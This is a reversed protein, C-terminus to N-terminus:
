LIFPTGHKFGSRWALMLTSAVLVSSALGEKFLLVEHSADVVESVDEPLPDTKQVFQQQLYKTPNKKIQACLWLAKQLRHTVREFHSTPFSFPM